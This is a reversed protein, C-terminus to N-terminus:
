VREVYCQAGNPDNRATPLGPERKREESPRCVSSLIVDIYFHRQYLGHLSGPITPCLMRLAQTVSQKGTDLVSDLDCSPDVLSLPDRLAANCKVALEENGRIAM